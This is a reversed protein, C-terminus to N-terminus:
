FAHFLQPLPVSFRSGRVDWAHEHSHLDVERREGLGGREQQRQQDDDLTPPAQELRDRRERQRVPSFAFPDSGKEKSYLPSPYPPLLPKLRPNSGIGLM